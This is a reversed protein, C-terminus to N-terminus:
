YGAAALKEDWTSNAMAFFDEPKFILKQALQETEPLIRGKEVVEVGARFFAQYHDELFGKLGEVKLLAGAPMLLEGVMVGHGMEERLRFNHRLADFQKMDPFGCNSILVTDYKRKYRSPHKYCDGEKVFHPEILPLMRDMFAKMFSTMSYVYVPTALVLLDCQRVKELLDAMDDKIVCKGPTKVWCGYCGTCHGINLKKLYVTETEAGKSQAGKLFERLMVDTNGSSGKPSGQIALIKKM